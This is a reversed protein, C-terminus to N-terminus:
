RLLSVFLWANLLFYFTAPTTQVFTDRIKLRVGVGLLMLLALGGSAALAAWHMKLGVCLGVAGLLQLIGVTTRWRKLGYRDFENKMRDSLLCTVGFFLFSAASFAM